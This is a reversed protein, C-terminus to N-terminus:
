KLFDNLIKFSIRKNSSNIAFLNLDEMLKVILEDQKNFLKTLDIYGCYHSALILRETKLMLIKDNIAVAKKTAEEKTIPKSEDLDGHEIFFLAIPNGKEKKLYNKGFYKGPAINQNISLFPTGKKRIRIDRPYSFVNLGDTILTDDGLFGLGASIFFSYGKKLLQVQTILKILHELPFLSSIPIKLIYKSFFIYSKDLYLEMSNDKFIM